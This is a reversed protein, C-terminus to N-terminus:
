RITPDSIWIDNSYTTAGEIMLGTSYGYNFEFVNLGNYQSVPPRPSNTALDTISIVPECAVAQQAPQRCIELAVQAVRRDPFDGLYTVRINNWSVQVKDTSVGPTLGPLPTTAPAPPTGEQLVAALAGFGTPTPTPGPGNCWAADCFTIPNVNEITPLSDFVTAPLTTFRYDVYVAFTDGSVFMMNSDGFNRYWARFPTGGPMIGMYQTAAADLYSFAWNSEATLRDDDDTEVVDVVPPNEVLQNAAAEIQECYDPANADLGLPSFNYAQEALLVLNQVLPECRQLPDVGQWGTPRESVALTEDALLELDHRLNQYTTAPTNTIGGIWGEPRVSQGLLTDALLELDLFIDGALTPSDADRNGIWGGPRNNLGMREDALRELDGRIALIQAPLQALAEATFVAEVMDDEIEAAVALCYNLVSEPTTTQVNYFRRLIEVANQLTRTCRLLPAAGRWEPPRVNLGLHNDAAIELDHRVNRAIIERTSGVAGFWDPPRTQVGFVQDALQENDFWLDAVGTPSALNTNGTWTEPRQGEGFVLNALLELDARADFIFNETALDIQAGPAATASGGVLLLLITLMWLHMMRRQM